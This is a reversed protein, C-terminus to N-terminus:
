NLISNTTEELEGSIHWAWTQLFHASYIGYMRPREHFKWWTFSCAADQFGQILYVIRLPGIESILTGAGPKSSLSVFSISVHTIFRARCRNKKRCGQLGITKKAPYWDQMLHGFEFKSTGATCSSLSSQWSPDLFDATAMAYIEKRNMPADRNHLHGTSVCIRHHICVFWHRM